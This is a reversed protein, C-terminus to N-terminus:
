FVAVDLETSQLAKILNQQRIEHKFVCYPM